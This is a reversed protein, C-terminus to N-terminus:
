PDEPPSLGEVCSLWFVQAAKRPLEAIGEALRDMLEKATAHGVPCEAESSPENRSDSAVTRVRDRYHQRLRDTARRTALSVLFPRWEAVPQAPRVALGGPVDGPLLGSCRCPPRASPLGDALGGAGHEALILPWDTM